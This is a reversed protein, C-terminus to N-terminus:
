VVLASYLVGMHFRLRGAPQSSPSNWGTTTSSPHNKEQNQKLTEGYGPSSFIPNTKSMLHSVVSSNNVRLSRRAGTVPM